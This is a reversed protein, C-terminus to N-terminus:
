VHRLAASLLVLVEKQSQQESNTSSNANRLDKEPLERMITEDFMGSKM